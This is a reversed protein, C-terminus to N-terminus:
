RYYTVLMVVATIGLAVSISSLIARSVAQPVETSAGGVRLGEYCCIAGMVLGPFITQVSISLLDDGSLSEFLSHFFPGADVSSGSILIFGAAASVMAVVVCILSLGFVCVALGIMRPVVMYQFIDIGLSELLAVEGTTKMTAMETTIASASAGIVIFTSLFPAAIQVLLTAVMKASLDVEGTYELWILCQLYVTAGMLASVIATFPMAEVGAFLIQKALRDRVPYVWTAPRVAMSVAVCLMTSLYVVSRGLGIVKGGLSHLWKILPM